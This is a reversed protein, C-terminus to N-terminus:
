IELLRAGQFASSLVILAALAATIVLGLDTTMAAASLFGFLIAASLAVITLILFKPM